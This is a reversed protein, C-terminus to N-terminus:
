GIVAWFLRITQGAGLSAGNLLQGQFTISTPSRASIVQVHASAVITGGGVIMANAWIPNRGLGHGIAPISFNGNVGIAGGGNASVVGTDGVDLGWGGLRAQLQRILTELRAIDAM